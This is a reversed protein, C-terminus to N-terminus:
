SLPTRWARKHWTKTAPKAFCNADRLLKLWAATAENPFRLHAMRRSNQRGGLKTNRCLRKSLVVSSSLGEIDRSLHGIRVVQGLNANLGPTVRESACCPAQLLQHVSLRKDHNFALAERRSVLQLCLHTQLRTSVAPSLSSSRPM